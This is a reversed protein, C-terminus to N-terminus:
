EEKYLIKYEVNTLESPYYFKNPTQGIYFLTKENCFDYPFYGKYIELKYKICLENLSDTLIRYSDLLTISNSKNSIKLKLIYNDRKKIELKYEENNNLRNYELLIKIIFVADFKGMNHAYYTVGQYKPRLMENICKIIIESSNLSKEDIYYLVPETDLHTYFGLAYFKALKPNVNYTEVDIVGLRTNEIINLKDKYVPRKIAPLKIRHESFIIKNNKILLTYDGYNRIYSNKLMYVDECKDILVGDFSYAQKLIKNNSVKETVLIYDVGDVNNKYFLQNSNFLSQNEININDNQKINSIFDIYKGRDNKNLTLVSTVIKNTTKMKLPKGYYIRDSTIPLYRSLKRIHKYEKAPILKLGRVILKELSKYNVKKYLMQVMNIERDELSYKDLMVNLRSILNLRLNNFIKNSSYCNFKFPIKCGLMAFNDDLYRVKLLVYYQVKVSMNKIINKNFNDGDLLEEFSFWVCRNDDFPLINNLGKNTNISNNKISKNINM